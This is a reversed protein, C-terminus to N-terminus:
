GDRYLSFQSGIRAALPYRRCFCLGSSHQTPRVLELLDEAVEQVAEKVHTKVNRWEPSGLRSLTPERNDAGVYRTLRDAQHVPVFLQAEDAYEVCLYEREIGDVTRQVLGLFRGIGHDVHVVFDQAQLDSYHSKPRKPWRGPAVAHNPDAGALFRAMPSCTCALEDRPSFSGARVWAAKWSFPPLAKVLSFRNMGCPNCARREPPIGRRGPRGSRKKGPYIGHSAKITRWLTSRARFSLEAQDGPHTPQRDTRREPSRRRAPANGPSLDHELTLNSPQGLELYPRLTITDQLEQWSLYPVPFDEPIIQERISEQRLVLAQEEIENAADQISQLDDILVLSQRPLYDLLSAPQPHYHPLYFESFEGPEKRELNQAPIIYERAPMIQLRDPAPHDNTKITRQTAPDFPRLTDIEDGFFELRLPSQEAPPWLDLIGGRRAFQGPAIVITTPEYGISHCLRALQDLQINAGVKLLKVAKLFDRRPLTRTMLARVPAVILPPQEPKSAGPIHYSALSTLAVLRDRRSAEGWAGHSM